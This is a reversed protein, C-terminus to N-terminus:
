VSRELVGYLQVERVRTGGSSRDRRRMVQEPSMVEQYYRGCHEGSCRISPCKACRHRPHTQVPNDRIPLKPDNQKTLRQKRVKTSGCSAKSIKIPRLRVVNRPFRRWLKEPIDNSRSPPLLFRSKIKTSRRVFSPSGHSTSIVKRYLKRTSYKNGENNDIDPSVIKM